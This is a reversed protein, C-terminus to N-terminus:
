LRLLGKMELQSSRLDVLSKEEDIKQKFEAINKPTFPLNEKTRAIFVDVRQVSALGKLARTIAM